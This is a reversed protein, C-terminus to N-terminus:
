EMKVVFDYLATAYEQWTGLNNRNGEAEATLTQLFDQNSLVKELTMALSPEGHHSFGVTGPLTLLEGM